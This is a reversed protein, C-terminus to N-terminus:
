VSHKLANLARAAAPAESVIRVMVGHAPRPYLEVVQGHQCFFKPVGVVGGNLSEMYQFEPLEIEDVPLGSVLATEATVEVISLASYRKISGARNPLRREVDRM